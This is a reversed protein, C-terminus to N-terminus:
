VTSARRLTVSVTAGAGPRSEVGLEAGYLACIRRAIPLGFGPAMRVPGSDEAERELVLGPGRDAISLRLWGDGAGHCSVAVPTGAPSYRLANDTLERTLTELHGADIAALMAEEVDIALDAQRAHRSAVEEAVRTVVAATHDTRREELATSTRSAQALRELDAFLLLKEIREHLRRSGEFIGNAIECVLEPPASAGQERLFGSLAVLASLPDIFGQPVSGALSTELERLRRTAERRVFAVRTLRAEVAQSLEERSFPKLLYDDAGLARGARLQTPDAVGTLFILPIANTAPDRRLAALVEFGNPDPMVIDCLILDPRWEHALQIGSDGGEATRVEHGDIALLRPVLSLVSPDDDIALIRAM